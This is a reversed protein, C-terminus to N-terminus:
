QKLRFVWVVELAQQEGYGYGSQLAHPEISDQTLVLDRSFV